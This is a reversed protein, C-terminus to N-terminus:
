SGGLMRPKRSTSRKPAEYGLLVDELVCYYRTGKIGGVSTSLKHEGPGHRLCKRDILTRAVTGPDYDGCLYNFGGPFILLESRGRITRRYGLRDEIQRRPNPDQFRSMAFRQINNRFHQFGREEESSGSTGRAALWDRCCRSLADFAEDTPWGTLDFKTALEGAAALLALRNIGRLVEGGPNPLTNSARFRDMVAMVFEVSATKDAIFRQLFAIYPAGYYMTSAKKLERSFREASDFEHINEFIGYTKSAEAPINLFRVEVGAKVGNRGARQIYHPIDFEGTSFGVVRWELKKAQQGDQTMRNKGETNEIQYIMQEVHNPDASSIEDLFITADNHLELLSELGNPTTRWSQTFGRKGGGGCVSGGVRAATTKGSSSGGYIHVGGSEGDTDKLLCGAFASSVALNLRSNGVCWRGITKRWRITSQRVQWRNQSSHGDLHVEEGCDGITVGGPLVYADGTPGQHWGLREAQRIFTSCRSSEADLFRLIDDHNDRSIFLGASSLEAFFLKRDVASVSDAIRIPHVGGAHDKVELLLSWNSDDRNRIRGLVKLPGCIKKEKVPTSENYRWMFYIGNERIDFQGNEKGSEKVSRQRASNIHTVKPIEGSM